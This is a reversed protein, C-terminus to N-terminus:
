TRDLVEFLCGDDVLFAPRDPELSCRVFDALRIVRRDHSRVKEVFDVHQYRTVDV